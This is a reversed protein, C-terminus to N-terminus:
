VLLTTPEALLEVLKSAFLAAPAGDVARHDFTLSFPMMPRIAVQGDRAVPRDSVGGVALIASQPQNIIPTGTFWGGGVTALNTLTFTGGSVEDPLLKGGRAKEVLRARELSLERLSMSGAGRIVPVILGGELGGELAVAIGINVDSWVCIEDEVVSSNIIPVAEIAQAIALCIIDTYTVHFGIEQERRLLSERLSVVGTMEAEGMYTLQASGALSAQMHQAISRRMGKVPIRALVQKGDVVADGAAGAAAVADGAAPGAYGELSAEVAREVDARVIRGGPGTGEIQAPDLGHEEAIKRAAPSIRVKARRPKAPEPEGDPSRKAQAPEAAPPATVGPEEEPEPVTTMIVESPQSQLQSLEG